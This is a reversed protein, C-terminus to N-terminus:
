RGSGNSSEDSPRTSINWPMYNEVMGSPGLTLRIAHDQATSSRRHKRCVVGMVNPDVWQTIDALGERIQTMDNRTIGSKMSRFLMLVVDSEEELAGTQKLASLPPPTYPEMVDRGGRNLQAAMVLVIDRDVAYEKAARVTESMQFWDGTHAMRHFHDVVVVACGTGAAIEVWERLANVDIRRGPAFNALGRASQDELDENVRAKADSPLQTWENALVYDPNLGCRMAAWKRRLTEPSMEMGIYLFRVGVMELYGAWSLLFSTKGNAPRAGVIWLEGPLLPGTMKALDMWGWRPANTYDRDGAKLAGALQDHRLQILRDHSM